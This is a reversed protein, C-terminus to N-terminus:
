QSVTPRGRIKAPVTDHFNKWTAVVKKLNKGGYDKWKVSFYKREDTKRPNGEVVTRRSGVSFWDIIKASAEVCLIRRTAAVWSTPRQQGQLQQTVRIGWTNLIDEIFQAVYIMFSETYHIAIQELYVIKNCPWVSQVFSSEFALALKLDFSNAKWLSFLWSSCSVIFIYFSWFTIRTRWKNM